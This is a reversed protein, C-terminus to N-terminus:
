PLAWLDFNSAADTGVEAYLVFRGDSTWSQAVMDKTSALLEHEVKTEVSTMYLRRTGSRNSDFIVASSDPSWIPFRDLAADTTLRTMRSGDLIWVDGNGNLVRSVAIFRGDPSVRASSLNSEDPDGVTGLSRGHRDFWQLQHRSQAGARLAILGTASGSVAS